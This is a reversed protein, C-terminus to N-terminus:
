RIENIIFCLSRNASAKDLNLIKRRECITKLNTIHIIKKEFFDFEKVVNMKEM